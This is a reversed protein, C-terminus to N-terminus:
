QFDHCHAGKTRHTQNPRPTMLLSAQKRNVQLSTCRIKQLAQMHIHCLPEYPWLHSFDTLFEPRNSSTSSSRSSLSMGVVDPLSTTVTNFRCSADDNLELENSCQSGHEGHELSSSSSSSTDKRKLVSVVEVFLSGISSTEEM